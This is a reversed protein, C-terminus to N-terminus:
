YRWKTAKLDVVVVGIPNSGFPLDVTEVEELGGNTANSSLQSVRLVNIRPIETFTPQVQYLYKGNSDLAIDSSFSGTEATSDRSIFRLKGETDIKYLSLSNGVLNSVWAYIGDPTFAIWCPDLTPDELVRNIQNIKGQDSVLYYGNSGLSLLNVLLQQEAVPNFAVGFAGPQDDLKDAQILRGSSDVQFSDIIGSNVRTAILINGTKNFLVDAPAENINLQFTSGDLPKLLGNKITFGTLNGPTNSDGQNLVYLLGNSIALSVPNVGGSSIPSGVLHLAGNRGIVFVSINNSGPNVAYIYSGDTVLSHQSVALGRMNGEGGTPYTAVFKLKGTRRNRAHAAVANPGNPNTIVYVFSENARRIFSSREFDPENAQTLLMSSCIISCAIAIVVIGYGIKNKM